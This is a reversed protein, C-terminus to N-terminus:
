EWLEGDEGYVKRPLGCGLGRLRDKYLQLFYDPDPKNFSVGDGAGSISNWAFGKALLYCAYYREAIEDTTPIISNADDIAQSIVDDSIVSTSQIQLSNRVKAVTTSM